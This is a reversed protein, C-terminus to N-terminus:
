CLASFECNCSVSKLLAKWASEGLLGRYQEPKEHLGSMIRYEAYVTIGENLWLHEFNKTTVLNGSWGHAIEHALVDNM